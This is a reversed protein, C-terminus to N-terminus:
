KLKVTMKVPQHDSNQFDFDINETSVSEINPSILFFDIVTTATTGKQYAAKLRRNTPINSSYIWSWDEPMYNEDIVSYDVEDFIHDKYEAEFNPPCQNWDGGVIIYNGKAFEEDLFKKMFEMQGARLSGDDYASNHTNVILLEKGNELNYRNVLFCRDLMFLGVPFDYNGPFAYRDSTTPTHKSFTALGSLVSGLPESLPQPVFGVDYNKGFFGKYDTLLNSVEEFQNVHYSRKSDKDIEQLLLFDVNKQKALFEKVKGFNKLLNEESTRVQVGGDYFFDMTSGLGCYGINWLMLNYELTDNLVSTEKEANFVNEVSKPQYDAIATYGILGGVLVIPILIILLIIKFLKKM